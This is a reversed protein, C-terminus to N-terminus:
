YQFLHLMGPVLSAKFSSPSLILASWSDTVCVALPRYIVQRELYDRLGDVAANQVETPLSSVNISGFRAVGACM